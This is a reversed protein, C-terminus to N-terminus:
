EELEEVKVAFPWFREDYDKIEQETLHFEFEDSGSIGDTYIDVQGNGDWKAVYAATELDVYYKQEKEVEYGWRYADILKQANGSKSIWNKIKERRSFKHSVQILSIIFDIDAVFNHEFDNKFWKIYDAVYQPIVPKEIVVTNDKGLKAIDSMLVGSDLVEILKNVNFNLGHSSWDFKRGLVEWAQDVEVQKPMLLNQLDDLRFTVQVEGNLTDVHTDISKQEIWDLSLVEPEDLQSVLGNFKEVAKEYGLDFQEGGYIPRNMQEKVWEIDKKM